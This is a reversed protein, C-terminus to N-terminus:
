WLTSILGFVLYSLLNHNYIWSLWPSAKIQDMALGGIETGSILSIFLCIIWIYIMVQIGGLIAGGTKNIGSLIPLKAILDLWIVLIQLAIYVALFLVLFVVAKLIMDALYGGIYDRFYEIGMQKYVELNNNEVLLEKMKPPLQLEEIITWEDAKKIYGDLELEDLLEDIQMKETIKERMTDYVPTENKLWDTVYPLACNVAVLTILLAAASVALRIFGKRYGNIVAGLIYVVTIIELWHGSLKSIIEM